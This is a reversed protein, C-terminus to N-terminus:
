TGHGRPGVCYFVLSCGRKGMRRGRAHGSFGLFGGSRPPAILEVVVRATSLFAIIGVDHGCCTVGLNFLHVTLRTEVGIQVFEDRPILRIAVKAPSVIDSGRLFDCCVTRGSGNKPENSSGMQQFFRFDLTSCVFPGRVAALYPSHIGGSHL